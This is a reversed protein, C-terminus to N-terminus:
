KLCHKEENEKLNTEFLSVVFHSCVSDDSATQACSKTAMHQLDAILIPKERKYSIIDIEVFVCVASAEVGLSTCFDEPSRVITM